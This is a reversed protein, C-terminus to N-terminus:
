MFLYDLIDGAQGDSEADAPFEDPANEMAIFPLGTAEDFAPAEGTEVPPTGGPPGHPDTEPEPPLDLPMGRELAGELADEAMGRGNAKGIAEMIAAMKM